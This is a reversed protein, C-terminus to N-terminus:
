EEKKLETIIKETLMKNDGLESNDMLMKQLRHLDGIDTNDELFIKFITKILNETDADTANSFVNSHDNQYQAAVWRSPYYLELASLYAAFKRKQEKDLSDNFDTFMPCFRNLRVSFHTKDKVSPLWLFNETNSGRSVTTGRASQIRESKSVLMSLYEALKDKVLKPPVAVSKKIDLDWIHDMENPVDVCVRCLKSAQAKRALRLWGGWFILRKGRYIYFGQDDGFSRGKLGLDAMQENTIKNQHPLTYGTVTIPNNPFGPIYIDEPPFADAGGKRNELFPDKAEIERGNLLFHIPRISDSIFRHYVLGLHERAEVLKETLASFVDGSKATLNDFNRWLILTGHPLEDLFEFCPFSRFEQRDYVSVMWSQEKSVTDISWGASYTGLETKTIVIFERCQSLSATKMGLGFRGLDKERRKENPNKSAHRLSELLSSECMGSGNDLIGLFPETDADVPTIIEIVDAGASISNDIVDALATSFSYGLARMSQIMQEANPPLSVLKSM